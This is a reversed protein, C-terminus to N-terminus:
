QCGLHAYWRYYHQTCWTGLYHSPHQSGVEDALKGKVERGTSWRTGDCKLQVRDGPVPLKRRLGNIIHMHGSGRSCVNQPEAGSIWMRTSHLTNEKMVSLSVRIINGLSKGIIHSLFLYSSILPQIQTHLTLIIWQYRSTISRILSHM